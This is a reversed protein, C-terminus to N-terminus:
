VELAKSPLPKVLAVAGEKPSSTIIQMVTLCQLQVTGKGALTKEHEPLPETHIMDSASVLRPLLSSPSIFQNLMFMLPALKVAGLFQFVM